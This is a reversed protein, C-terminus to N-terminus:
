KSKSFTMTACAITLLLGMFAFGIENLTGAFSIVEQTAGTFTGWTVTASAITALLYGLHININKIM